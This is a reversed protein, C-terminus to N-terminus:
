PTSPRPATTAAPPTSLRARRRAATRVSVGMARALATTGLHRLHPPIEPAKPTRSQIIAYRGEEVLEVLIPRVIHRSYGSRICIQTMSLQGYRDIVALIDAKATPRDIIPTM